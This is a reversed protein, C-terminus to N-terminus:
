ASGETLNAIDHATHIFAKAADQDRWGAALLAADRLALEYKHSLVRNADQQIALAVTLRTNEDRLVRCEGALQLARRVFWTM